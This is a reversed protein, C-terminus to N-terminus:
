TLYNKLLRTYILTPRIVFFKEICKRGDMVQRMSRFLFDKFKPFTKTVIIATAIENCSSFLNICFIISFKGVGVFLDKREFADPRISGRRNSRKCEPKRM